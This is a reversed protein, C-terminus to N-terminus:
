IFRWDLPTCAYLRLVIWKTLITELLSCALLSTGSKLGFLTVGATNQSMFLCKWGLLVDGKCSLLNEGVKSMNSDPYHKFQVVDLFTSHFCNCLHNFDERNFTVFKKVADIKVEFRDGFQGLKVSHMSWQNCEINRRGKGRPWKCNSVQTTFNWTWCQCMPWKSLIETWSWQVTLQSEAKWCLTFLVVAQLWYICLCCMKILVDTRLKMSKPCFHWKSWYSILSIGESHSSRRLKCFKTPSCLFSSLLVSASAVCWTDPIVISWSISIILWTIHPDYECAQPSVADSCSAIM